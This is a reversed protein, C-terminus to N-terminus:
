GPMHKLIRDIQQIVQPTRCQNRIVQLAHADKESAAVEVAERWYGIACLWEMRQHADPLRKIYQVAEVLAKEEICAEVFPQFGIPPDKKSATLKAMETWHHCRALTRVELHWLRQESVKFKRRVQLKRTMDQSEVFAEIMQSVTLDIVRAGVNEKTCAEQYKMLELQEKTAALSFTNAKDEGFFFEADKLLAKRGSWSAKKYALQLCVNGANTAEQIHVYFSKLKELDTKKLHAIYLNKALPKSAVTNWFEKKTLDRAKEMKFLVQYVLDADYSEIAKELALDVKGIGLLLPVQKHALPEFKLLMAALETKGEEHAVAAVSEFSLGHSSGLSSLKEVIEKGLIVDDEEDDEKIEANKIKACAWHILVREPNMSLYKCIRFALMHHHRAILRDILVVEKLQSYQTYTLPIAVEVHRVANLVRLTRCMDVFDDAKYEEARLKGFSAAQLLQRQIAHDFENASAQLCEDIAEDIAGQNDLIARINDDSRM